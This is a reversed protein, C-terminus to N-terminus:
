SKKAMEAQHELLKRKTEAIRANIDSTQVPEAPAAQPISKGAAPAMAKVDAVIKEETPRIQEPIAVINAKVQDVAVAEKTENILQKVEPPLTQELGKSWDVSNMLEILRAWILDPKGRLIFLLKEWFVKTGFISEAFAVGNVCAKDYIQHAWGPMRLGFREFVKEEIKDDISTLFETVPGRAQQVLGAIKGAIHPFFKVAVGGLVTFLVPNM